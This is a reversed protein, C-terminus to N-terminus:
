GAPIQKKKQRQRYEGRVAWVRTMRVRYPSPGSYQGKGKGNCHCKGNSEGLGGLIGTMEVPAFRLPSVGTNAKARATAQKEGDDQGQLPFSGRM